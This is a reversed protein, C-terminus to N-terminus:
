GSFTSVGDGFRASGFFSRDLSYYTKSFRNVTASGTPPKQLLRTAQNMRALLNNLGPKYDGFDMTYYRTTGGDIKCTLKNIIFIGDLRYLPSTIRINMGAKLGAGYLTNLTGTKIGNARRLLEARATNVVAAYTTLNSDSIFYDFPRPLVTGTPQFPAGGGIQGTSGGGYKTVSPQYIAVAKLDRSGAYTVTHPRSVTPAPFNPHATYRVFGTSQNVLVPWGSGIWIDYAGVLGSTVLVGNMAVNVHITTPDDLGASLNLTETMQALGGIIIAEGQIVVTLMYEYYPSVTAQVIRPQAVTPDTNDMYAIYYVGRTLSTTFDMSAGDGSGVSILHATLNTFNLPVGDAGTRTTTDSSDAYAWPVARQSTYSGGSDVGSVQRTISNLKTLQEYHLQFTYINDMVSVDPVDDGVYPFIDQVSNPPTITERGGTVLVRNALGSLDNKYKFVEMARVTATEDDDGDQDYRFPAPNNEQGYYYHVYRNADVYFNCGTQNCLAQVLEMVTGSDIIFEPIVVTSQVFNVFYYSPFFDGLITTLIHFDTNNEFVYLRDIATKTMLVSYDKASVIHRLNLGQPVEVESDDIFGAFERVYGSGLNLTVVIEKWELPFLATVMSDDMGDEVLDFKLTSYTGPPAGAIITYELTGDDTNVFPSVDIGNILVRLDLM